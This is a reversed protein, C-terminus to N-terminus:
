DTTFVRVRGDLIACISRGPDGEQITLEGESFRHVMATEALQEREAPRLPLLFPIKPIVEM